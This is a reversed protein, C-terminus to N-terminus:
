ARRDFVLDGRIMVARVGEASTVDLGPVGTALVFDAQKGPEISGLRDDLGTIRAGNLTILALADSESVGQDRLVRMAPRALYMLHSSQVPTDAPLDFWTAEPHVPLVSDTAIAVVVGAQFAAAIDDPSNPRRSTGGSPTACLQIGREALVPLLERPMGHGHHIVNGGVALFDAIAEPGEMHAGFRRGGAQYARAVRALDDLPYAREGAHPTISVPLNAPTVTVFCNEGPFENLAALERLNGDDKLADLPVGEGPFLACFCSLPETGIVSGSVAFRFTQPMRAAFERYEHGPRRFAFHGLIHEGMATVGAQLANLLLTAAGALQGREGLGWMTGAGYELNHTHSDVLGPTVVLGGADLVEVAPYDAHVQSWPGVAVISSGAIAVAGDDIEGLSSVTVLRGARILKDVRM